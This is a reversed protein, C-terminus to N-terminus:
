ISLVGDTLSCGVLVPCTSTGDPCGSPPNAHPATTCALTIRSLDFEGTFGDAGGLCVCTDFAFVRFYDPNAPNVIPLCELMAATVEDGSDLKLDQYPSLLEVLVAAKCCGSIEPMFTLWLRLNITTPNTVCSAPPDITEPDGDDGGLSLSIEAPLELNIDTSYCTCVGCTGEEWDPNFASFSGTLGDIDLCNPADILWTIDPLTAPNTTRDIPFCSGVCSQECSCEKCRLTITINDPLDITATFNECVSTGPEIEVAYVVEDVTATLGCEDDMTVTINYYGVTGSWEVPDCDYAVDCIEGTALIGGGYETIEVCLCECTCECNLCLARICNTEYDRVHPLPRRLDKSWYLTGELYPLNIAVEDGSDRCSVNGYCEERYVEEGDFTVVLECVGYEDRQWEMVFSIGGPSATWRGDGDSSMDSVPEEGYEEWTVCYKCAIVSCCGDTNAEQDNCTLSKESCKKLRTEKDQKWFEPGM